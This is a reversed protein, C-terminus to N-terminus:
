YSRRTSHGGHESLQKILSIRIEGAMVSLQEVPLKKVDRPSKINEIYM